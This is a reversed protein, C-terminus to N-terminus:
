RERDGRESGRLVVRAARVHPHRLLRSMSSAAAHRKRAQPFAALYADTLPPIPFFRRSGGKVANCVSQMAFHHHRCSIMKGIDRRLPPVKASPTGSHERLGAVRSPRGTTPKRLTIEVWGLEAAQELEWKEVGHSRSLDRVSMAQGATRELVRQIRQLRERCLITPRM